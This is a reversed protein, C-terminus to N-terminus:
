TLEAATPNTSRAESRQGKERALEERLRPDMCEGPRGSASAQLDDRTVDPEEGLLLVRLHANTGRPWFQAAASRQQPRSAAQQDTLATM